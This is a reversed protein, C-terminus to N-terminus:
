LQRPNRWFDKWLSWEHLASITSSSSKLIALATGLAIAPPVRCCRDRIAIITNRNVIWNFAAIIRVDAFSSLVWIDPPATVPGRESSKGLGDIPATRTKGDKIVPVCTWPHRLAGMSLRRM